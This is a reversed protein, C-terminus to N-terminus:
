WSRRGSDEGSMQLIPGEIEIELVEVRPSEYQVVVADQATNEHEKKM